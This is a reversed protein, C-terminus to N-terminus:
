ANPDAFLKIFENGNFTNIIQMIDTTLSTM